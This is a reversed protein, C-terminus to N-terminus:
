ITHHTSADAGVAQGHAIKYKATLPNAAGHAAGLMPTKLQSDPGHQELNFPQEPM